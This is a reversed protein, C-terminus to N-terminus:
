HFFSEQYAHAITGHPNDHPQLQFNYIEFMGFLIFTAEDTLSVDALFNQNAATEQLYWRGFNLRSLYDETTMPQATQLPHPQMRDESLTM